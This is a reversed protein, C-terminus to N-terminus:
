ASAATLSAPVAAARAQKWGLPTLDHIRSTPVVSVKDLVDALYAYPDIGLEKCSTVLSFLVAAREGGSERAFFLWNKRGIAVPRVARETSNNDIDLRGDTTYVQLAKWQGLTYSIAEGIPSKPLVEQSQKDLWEKILRLLPVSEKQRLARREEPGLGKARDEIRYLARIMGVMETALEIASDEAKIFYRRAHAWCGVRVILGSQFLRDYAAYGDVQLYGRFQGLFREPGDRSRGRRFDYLTLGPEGRYLWLYSNSSGNEDAGSLLRVATDDSKIYGTALLQRRMEKVIPELLTVASGIWGCMTSRSVDIGHRGFIGELRYLTSHDGYKSTLTFALLAPGPLGREIPRPPLPPCAVGQQCKPCSLKVREERIVYISAPEYELRETVERGIETKDADCSGCRCEQEPPRIEIVRRPLDEPLKRRGGVKRRPRPPAPPPLEASAEEPSNAGSAADGDAEAPIEPFLEGTNPDRRESKRGLLQKTLWAIQGELKEIRAHKEKLLKTLEDIQERLRAEHDGSTQM